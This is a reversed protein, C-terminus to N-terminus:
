KSPLIKDLRDELQGLQASVSNSTEEISKRAYETNAEIKANIAAMMEADLQRQAAFHEAIFNRLDTVRSVEAQNVLKRQAEMEKSLRRTRVLESAHLYLVYVVFLGSVLLLVGLMVLGIPALIVGFGISLATPTIFETWNLAVFGSVLSILALVFAFRVTM